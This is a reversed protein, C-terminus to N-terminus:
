VIRNLRVEVLLPRVQQHPALVQHHYLQLVPLLHIPLRLLLLVVLLPTRLHQVQVRHHLLHHVLYVRHLSIFFSSISQNITINYSNISISLLFRSFVEYPFSVEKMKDVDGECDNM